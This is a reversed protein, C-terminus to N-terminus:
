MQTWKLFKLSLIKCVSYNHLLFLYHLAIRRNNSFVYLSKTFFIAQPIYIDHRPQLQVSNRQAAACEALYFPTVAIRGGAQQHCQCIYKPTIKIGKKFFIYFMLVMSVSLSTEM